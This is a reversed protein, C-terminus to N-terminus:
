VSAVATLTAKEPKTWTYLGFKYYGRVNHLRYDLDEKIPITIGQLQEQIYPALVAGGGGTIMIADIDWDDSWVQNADIAIVSALQKLSAESIKKLDYAKGRVKITGQDVATFLRYIEIDIGCTEKLKHGIKSFAVSIGKKTTLSGRESYRGKDSITYDTTRFGVDIVGIKDTAFRQNKPTGLSSLLRDMVTGLPQPLVRVDAVHINLSRKNGEGDVAVFAHTGNLMQALEEKYQRYHGIPLGVVLKIPQSDDRVFHSLTALALIKSSSSVFQSQDLTFSRSTSQRESLEGVFYSAGDIEIQLHEDNRSTDLLNERFQFDVAEGYISKFVLFDRGDTAKTFGFGIDIGIINEAM